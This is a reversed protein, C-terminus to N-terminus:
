AARIHDLFANVAAELREANGSLEGASVLLQRSAAGTAATGQSVGAINASVESTGMAAEHANRTIERTAVSQEEAASAVATSIGSMEQVVDVVARIADVASATEQQMASIQKAIDETAKATQNALSKVEHAVVAFGKGADGARAAEITANLALLNTQSAIDSILKVIGGVSRATEALGEVTTNSRLAETSARGALTASQAVQRSVEMISTSLEETAAAVTQVNSATQEASSAVATSQHSTADATISMRDSTAHLDAAASAVAGLLSAVQERFSAIATEINDVRRRERQTEVAQQNEMDRKLVAETKFVALSRALSGVEDRRETEGVEIDLDGKALREMLGAMRTMPRAIGIVLATGVGAAVLLVLGLWGLILGRASHYIDIGQQTQQNGGERDASQLADFAARFATFAKEMDGTWLTMTLSVDSGSSQALEMMENRKTLYTAWAADLAGVLHRERDSAALKAYERRADEYAALAARMRETVEKLEDDGTSLVYRGGLTQMEQATMGIRGLVELSPLWKDRLESAADNVAGLRQTAFIGLGLVVLVVLAFAASVKTRISLSKLSQM